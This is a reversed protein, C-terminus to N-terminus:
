KLIFHTVGTLLYRFISMLEICWDSYVKNYGRKVNKNKAYWQKQIDPSFYIFINGQQVKAKNYASWNQPKFKFM